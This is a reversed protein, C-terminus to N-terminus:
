GRTGILGCGEASSVEQWIALTHIRYRCHRETYSSIRWSDEQLTRDECQLAYNVGSMRTCNLCM